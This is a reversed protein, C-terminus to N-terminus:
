GIVVLAAGAEVSAGESVLVERVVGDLGARLENEMKMAEVVAVGQRATVTDGVSVLVKVVKGPMPATVRGAGRGAAGPARSTAAGSARLRVPLLLGDVLLDVNGNQGAPAVFVSHQRGSAPVRVSWRGGSEAADIVREQGDLKVVLVPGRHEIEVIRVRGGVEVELRM